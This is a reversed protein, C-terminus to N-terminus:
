LPLFSQVHKMTFHHILQKGSVLTIIISLLYLAQLIIYIYFRVYNNQGVCNNIWPCHHDFREVCKNCVQCHFSRPTNIVKCFPCLGRACFTSMLTAFDMKPDREIYGPKSQWVLFWFLMTAAFLIRFGFISMISIGSQQSLYDRQDKKYLTYEISAYTILMFIFFQVLLTLSRDPKAYYHRLGFRHKM